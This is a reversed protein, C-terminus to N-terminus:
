KFILQTSEWLSPAHYKTKFLIHEEKTVTLYTVMFPILEQIVLSTVIM